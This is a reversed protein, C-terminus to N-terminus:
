SIKLFLLTLVLGFTKNNRQCSISWCEYACVRVFVSASLSVGAEMKPFPVM